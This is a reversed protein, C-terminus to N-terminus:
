QATIGTEDETIVTEDATIDTEEVVEGDMITEEAVDSAPENDAKLMRLEEQAEAIVDYHAKASSCYGLVEPAVEEGAAFRLYYYEGIKKLDDQVAYREAAIKANLKGTEIADEAKDGVKKAVETTKDGVRKAVDTLKDLFAM